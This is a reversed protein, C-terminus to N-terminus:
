REVVNIVLDCKFGARCIKGVMTKACNQPVDNHNEPLATIGPSM